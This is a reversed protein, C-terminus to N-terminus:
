DFVVGLLGGNPRSAASCSFHANPPSAVRHPRQGRLLDIARGALSGGLGIRVNKSRVEASHPFNRTVTRTKVRTHCAPQASARRSIGEFSANDAPPPEIPPHRRPLGCVGPWRRPETADNGIRNADYDYITRPHPTSVPCWQCLCRRRPSSCEIMRRATSRSAATTAQRISGCVRDASQGAHCRTCPM